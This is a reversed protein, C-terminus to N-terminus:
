ENDTEGLIYNICSNWGLAFEDYENFPPRLRPMPKLPCNNLKFDNDLEVNEKTAFCKYESEEFQEDYYLTCLDCNGCCNPTDIILITKSM